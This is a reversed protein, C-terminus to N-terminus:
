ANQHSGINSALMEGATRYLEASEQVGLEEQAAMTLLDAVWDYRSSIMSRGDSTIAYFKGPRGRGTRKFSSEVLGRAVMDELHRRVVSMNMSM